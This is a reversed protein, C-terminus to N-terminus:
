HGCPAASAEVSFIHFATAPIMLQVLDSGKQAAQHELPESQGHGSCLHACMYGRASAPVDEGEEPGEGDGGPCDPSM